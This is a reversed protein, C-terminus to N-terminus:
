PRGGLQPWTRGTGLDILHTPLDLKIRLRNEPQLNTASVIRSSCDFPLEVISNLLQGIRQQIIVEPLSVEILNLEDGCWDLQGAVELHATIKGSIWLLSAYLVKNGVPIAIVSEYSNALKKQVSAKGEPAANLVGLAFDDIWGDAGLNDLEARLERFRSMGHLHIDSANLKDHYAIGVVYPGRRMAEDIFDYEVNFLYFICSRQRQMDVGVSSVGFGPSVQNIAKHAAKRVEQVQMEIENRKTWLARMDLVVEKAFAMIQKPTAACFHTAGAVAASRQLAVGGAEALPPFHIFQLVQRDFIQAPGPLGIRRCALRRTLREIESCLLVLNPGHANYPTTEVPFLGGRGADLTLHEGDIEISGSGRGSSVRSGLPLQFQVGEDELAWNLDTALETIEEVSLKFQLQPANADGRLRRDVKLVADLAEALPTNVITQAKGLVAQLHALVSNHDQAIKDSVIMKKGEDSILLQFRWTRQDRFNIAM